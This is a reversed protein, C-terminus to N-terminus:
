AGVASVAILVGDSEGAPRETEDEVLRRGQRGALGLLGAGLGVLDHAAQDGGHELDAREDAVVDLLVLNALAGRAGLGRVPLLDVLEM